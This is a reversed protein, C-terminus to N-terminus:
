SDKARARRIERGSQREAFGEEVYVGSGADFKKKVVIAMGEYALIEVM